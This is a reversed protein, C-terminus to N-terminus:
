IDQAGEDNCADCELVLTDDDNVDSNYADVQPYRDAHLCGVPYLKGEYLALDVTENGMVLGGIELGEVQGGIRIGPYENNTM